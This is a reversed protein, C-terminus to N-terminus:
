PNDASDPDDPSRPPPLRDGGSVARWLQEAAAPLDDLPYVGAVYQDPRVIVLAGRDSIGREVFVDSSTGTCFVNERNRLRFRGVSPRFLDDIEEFDVLSAQQRLVLYCVCLDRAAPLEDPKADTVARGVERTFSLEAAADDGHAAEFVYVRWRGDVAHQHGLYVIKADSCRTVLASHFRKGVPYGTAVTADCSRDTIPSPGYHTMLGAPFEWTKLYFDALAEPSEEHKSMLGSWERDFAILDRAVELRESEFTGLLEPRATGTLVAGLKWGLNFGDQMSVNMGQGAKASHTHGADGLLFVGGYYEGGDPGAVPVALNDAVRHAVEYVSFWAVHRVDVTYPALIRQMSTIVEEVPTQRVSHDGATEGLDVYMRVLYGGERPILLLNGDDGGQIACKRRLDPFDTEVLVDMVGWAHMAETGRMEIGVAHRVTSRAGDAGVLYRCRLVRRGLAPAADDGITVRIPRASGADITLGTVARGYSPAIPNASNGLFDTLYDLVRAQNALVHPFESLRDPDDIVVRRRELATVPGDGRAWFSVEGEYAAEDLLSTAFGFAQFMEVSRQQIGDAQGIGLRGPRKELLCFSVGPHASLSAATVLGAPGAGVIIADFEDAANDLPDRATRNGLRPDGSVYGDFHFQMDSEEVSDSGGARERQACM